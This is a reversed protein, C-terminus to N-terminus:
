AKGSKRRLRSHFKQAAFFRSTPPRPRSQKSERPATHHGITATRRFWAPTEETQSRHPTTLRGSPVYRLPDVRVRLQATTGILHFGIGSDPPKAPGQGSEFARWQDEM